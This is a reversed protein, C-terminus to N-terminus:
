PRIKWFNADSVSTADSGNGLVLFKSTDIVKAPGDQFLVIVLGANPVHYTSCTVYTDGPQSRWRLQYTYANYKNNSADTVCTSPPAAGNCDAALKSDINSWNLQYRPIFTTGLSNQGTVQPNADFADALFFKHPPTTVLPTVGTAPDTTGLTNVNLDNTTKTLDTIPNDPDTFVRYDKVFNPYLTPVAGPTPKYDAMSGGNDAYGFLVDPYKHYDLKYAEMGTQIQHMNSIVTTQRAKERVKAFVPFLLAALIAIVAIVVLLEILTFARGIKAPRVASVRVTSM